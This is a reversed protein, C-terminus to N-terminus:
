AEPLLVKRIRELAWDIEERTVVLPPAFRIVHEHTEKCLLGLKMLKECFARAGGMEHKLEVGILLGKGRIDKVYPSNIKRLQDQFYDGMLAANEILNEEKLVHPGRERHSERGKFGEPGGKGRCM